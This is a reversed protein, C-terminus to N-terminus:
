PIPSRPRPDVPPDTPIAVAQSGPPGYRIGAANVAAAYNRITDASVTAGRIDIYKRSTPRSPTLLSSLEKDTMSINNAHLNHLDSSRCLRDFGAASIRTNSINLSFLRPLGILVDVSADSIDTGDLAVYTLHRAADMAVLSALDGDGFKPNKVILHLDVQKGSAWFGGSPISVSGGLTHARDTMADIANRTHWTWLLDPLFPAVAVLIGFAALLCGPRFFRTTTCPDM